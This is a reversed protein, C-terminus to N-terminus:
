GCENSKVNLYTGPPCGCTLTYVTGVYGSEQYVDYYGPLEQGSEGPLLPRLEVASLGSSCKPIFANWIEEFEYESENYM